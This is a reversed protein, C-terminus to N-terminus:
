GPGCNTGRAYDYGFACQVPITFTYTPALPSTAATGILPLIAMM